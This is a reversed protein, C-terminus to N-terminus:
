ILKEMTINLYVSAAWMATLFSPIWSNQIGFGTISWPKLLKLGQFNKKKEHLNKFLKEYEVAPMPKAYYYGQIYYCGISKLYDAQAKEEVGEAIVAIGLWKAMRVVSEIIKGARRSNDTSEFFRIDLRIVSASVDKLANLSSYGSGFDDIEVIFGESILRRIKDIVQRSSEAFASETIELRILDTPIDYKRIIQTISSIFDDHLIDRRSVNVSLSLHQAKEDIWKRLM